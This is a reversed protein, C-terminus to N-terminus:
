EHYAGGVFSFRVEIDQLLEARNGCWHVVNDENAYVEKEEPPLAELMDVVPFGRPPEDIDLAKM